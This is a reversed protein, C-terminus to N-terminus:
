RLGPCTPSNFFFQCLLSVIGWAASMIFLGVIGWIMVKRGQKMAAENGQGGMIVYQIVGWIFVITALVFLLTILPDLIGTQIKNILQTITTM